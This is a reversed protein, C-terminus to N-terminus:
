EITEDGSIKPETHTNTRMLSTWDNVPKNINRFREEDCKFNSLGWRGPPFYAGRHIPARSSWNSGRALWLKKEQDRHHMKFSPPAFANQPGNRCSGCRSGRLQFNEDQPPASHPSSSPLLLLYHICPACVLYWVLLNPNSSGSDQMYIAIVSFVTGVRKERVRTLTLASYVLLATVKDGKRVTNYRM